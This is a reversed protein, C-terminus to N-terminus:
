TSPVSASVNSAGRLPGPRRGIPHEAAGDASDADCQTDQTACNVINVSSYVYRYPLPVAVSSIPPGSKALPPM